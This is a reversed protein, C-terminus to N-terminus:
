KVNFGHNGSALPTCASSSNRPQGYRKGKSFTLKRISAFGKELSVSVTDHSNPNGLEIEKINFSM